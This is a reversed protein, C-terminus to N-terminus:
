DHQRHGRTDLAHGPRGHQAGPPARPAAPRDVVAGAVLQDVNGM